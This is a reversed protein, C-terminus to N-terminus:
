FITLLFRSINMLITVLPNLLMEKMWVGLLSAFLNKVQSAPNLHVAPFLIGQNSHGSFAYGDRPPSAFGQIQKGASLGAASPSLTKAKKNIPASKSLSLLDLLLLNDWCLFVSHNWQKM